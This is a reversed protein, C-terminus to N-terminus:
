VHARGIQDRPRVEWGSWGERAAHATLKALDGEQARLTHPSVGRARQEMLFGEVASLGEMGAMRGYQEM